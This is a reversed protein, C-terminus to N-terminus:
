WLFHKKHYFPSLSKKNEYRSILLVHLPETLGSALLGMKYWRFICLFVFTASSFISFLFFSNGWKVKIREHGHDREYLFCDM